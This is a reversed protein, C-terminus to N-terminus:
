LKPFYKREGRKKANIGFNKIKFFEALEHKVIFYYFLNFLVIM